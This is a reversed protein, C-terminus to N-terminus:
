GVSRSPSCARWLVRLPWGLWEIPYLLLSCLWLLPGWIINVPRLWGVRSLLLTAGLIALTIGFQQLEANIPIGGLSFTEFHIGLLDDLLLEVSIALILLYAAVELNPEWAIMRSFITAAFRMLVIGIAVGLLVIWYEDSLSVAAVVNDLSFALDALEVAAVVGWFSTATM